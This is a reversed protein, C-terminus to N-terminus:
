RGIIGTAGTPPPCERSLYISNTKEHVHPLTSFFCSFLWTLYGLQYGVNRCVPFVASSWCVAPTGKAGCFLVDRRGPPANRTKELRYGCALIRPMSLEGSMIAEARLSWGSQSKSTSSAPDSSSSSVSKSTTKELAQRCHTGFWSRTSGEMSRRSLAPPMAAACNVSFMLRGGCMM